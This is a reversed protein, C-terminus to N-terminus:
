PPRPDRPPAAARAAPRACPRRRPSGARSSTMVTTWSMAARRRASTTGSSSAMPRAPRARATAAAASGRGIASARAAGPRWRMASTLREDGDAPEMAAPSSATARARAYAAPPAAAIETRHSGWQNPPDMSSRRATRAATETGTRALSNMTSGRCSSRRRAAPASRTSRRATSWGAFRRALSTACARSRPRSGSTSACSARSISAARALPARSIPILLRSRRVSSTSGSRATRSRSRTGPSRSAIASDPTRSGAVTARQRAVPKSAASTPSASIREASGAAAARVYTPAPVWGRSRAAAARSGITLIQPMVSSAPSRAATRAPASAM